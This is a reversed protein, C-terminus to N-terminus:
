ILYLIFSNGFTISGLFKNPFLVGGAKDGLEGELCGEGGPTIGLDGGLCGEGCPALVFLGLDGGLCGEGGPTIGLDGGM